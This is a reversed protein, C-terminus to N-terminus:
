IPEREYWINFRNGPVPISSSSPDCALQWELENNISGLAVRERRGGLHSGYQCTLLL